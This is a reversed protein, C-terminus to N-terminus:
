RVGRFQPSKMGVHYQKTEDACRYAEADAVDM